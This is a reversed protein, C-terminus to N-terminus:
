HLLSAVVNITMGIIVVGFLYSILAHRLATRRIAQSTLNTDSVQFTMGVTFAVYAFDPYAPASKENFNIGGQPGTYYLRAYRLTFITHVLSWAAIVSLVGVAILFAKEGGRSDGAKVLAMGVGGLCALAATLMVVEAIRISPDERVAVRETGDADLGGLAAWLSIVYFAAAVIWGILEAAQWTVVVASAAGAGTGLLAGLALRVGARRVRYPPDTATLKHATRGRRAANHCGHTVLIGAAVVQSCEPDL